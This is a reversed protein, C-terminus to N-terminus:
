FNEMDQSIEMDMIEVHIEVRKLVLSEMDQFIKMDQFVDKNYLFMKGQRLKLACTQNTSSFLYITLYVMYVSVCKM